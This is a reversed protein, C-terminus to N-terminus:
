MGETTSEGASTPGSPNSAAHEVPQEAPRERRTRLAALMRSLEEVTANRLLDDPSAGERAKARAAEAQALALEAEARARATNAEVLERQLPALERREEREDLRAVAVSAQAIARTLASVDSPELSSGAKTEAVLMTGATRIAEVLHERGECLGEELAQAHLQRRRANEGRALADRVTEFPLNLSRATESVNGTRAYLEGILALLEPAM